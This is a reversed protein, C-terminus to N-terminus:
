RPKVAEFYLSGPKYQSGDALVDLGYDEWGTIKSTSYTMEGIISFGSDRLIRDLNYKDYMWQHTEGRARADGMILNELRRRWTSQLSSGYAEKRVCQELIESVFSDHAELAEDSEDCKNFNQMYEKCLYHLDPVVIRHVGGPKLVRLVEDFFGPVSARDIHELFHSHYVADVSNAEAPIGHRLDHVIINKPLTDFRAKRAGVMFPKALFRLLTSQRIRLYVSWDINQVFTSDSTQVGCGLNLIQM